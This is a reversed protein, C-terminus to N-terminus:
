PLPKDKEWSPGEFSSATVLLKAGPPLKWVEFLVYAADEAAEREDGYIYKKGVPDYKVLDVVNNTVGADPREAERYFGRREKLIREAEEPYLNTSPIDMAFWKEKFLFQVTRSSGHPNNDSVPAESDPEYFILFCTNKAEKHARNDMRKLFRLFQGVRKKRDSANVSRRYQRAPPPPTENEEDSDETEEGSGTNRPTEAKEIAKKPDQNGFAVAMLGPMYRDMMSFNAFALAKVFEMTPEIGELPASTKFCVEGTSHEMEFNGLRLNFNAMALYENVATRSVAPVKMGCCSHCAVHSEREDWSLYCIWRGVEGYVIGRLNRDDLEVWSTWKMEDIFERVTEKIRSM